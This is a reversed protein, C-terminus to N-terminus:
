SSLGRRAGRGPLDQREVRPCSAGRRVRAIRPRRGAEREGRRRLARRAAASHGGHTRCQHEHALARRMFARSLARPPASGFTQEWARKLGARDLGELEVAVVRTDTM